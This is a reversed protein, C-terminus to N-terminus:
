KLEALSKTARAFHPDLQLSQKYAARATDPNKRRQQINGLRWHVAARSPEDKGPTLKLCRQLHSEGLVLQEGSEAAIRGISYHALYNTPQAACLEQFLTTAEAFRRDAVYLQGLILTGLNLDRSRIAEAQAYAKMVGGGLFSPAQRYYDVLGRRAELNDPALEVARELAALCKKAFTIQGLVSAEDAALGYAEGLEAFYDSNTPDLQTSKEFHEIAAETHNRKMAIRGLYHRASADDPNAYVIDQFAVRAEGYDHAQYLALAAAFADSSTASVMLPTISMLLSAILLFVRHM